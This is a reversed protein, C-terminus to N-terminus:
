VYRFLKKYLATKRKFISSLRRLYEVDYKALDHDQELSLVASEGLKRIMGIRMEVINGSRYTNCTACGGHVNNTNYRLKGCAGVSRYHCAHRQHNGNDPKGCAICPKGNDRIRIYSNFSAQAKKKWEPVTDNLKQKRERLDKKLVKAEKARQKALLSLSLTTGCEPDGCWVKLGSQYIGPKIKCISCKRPKTAKRQM